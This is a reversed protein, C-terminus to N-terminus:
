ITLVISLFTPSHNKKGCNLYISYNGFALKGFAFKGIQTWKRMIFIWFIPFKSNMNVFFESCEWICQTKLIFLEFTRSKFKMHIFLKCHKHVYEIGNRGIGVSSGIFLFLIFVRMKQLFSKMNIMMHHSLKRNINKCTEFSLNRIASLNSDQHFDDSRCKYM